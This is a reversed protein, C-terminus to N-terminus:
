IYYRESKLEGYRYYMDEDMICDDVSEICNDMILSTRIDDLVELKLSREIKSSENTWGILQLEAEIEAQKEMEAERDIRYRMSM